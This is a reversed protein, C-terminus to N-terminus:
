GDGTVKSEVKMEEDNELRCYLSSILCLALHAIATHPFMEGLASLKLAFFKILHPKLLETESVLPWSFLFPSKTSTQRNWAQKEALSKLPGLGATFILHLFQKQLHNIRPLPHANQTQFFTGTICCTKRELNATFLHGQFTHSLCPSM